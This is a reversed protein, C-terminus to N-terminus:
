YRVDHKMLWDIELIIENIDNSVVVNAPLEMYGLSLNLGTSGLVSIRAGSATFLRASSRQLRQEKVLVPVISHNCGTDLVCHVRAWRLDGFVGSM